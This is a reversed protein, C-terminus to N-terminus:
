AGHAAGISAHHHHQDRRRWVYQSFSNRHACSAAVARDFVTQAAGHLVGRSRGVHRDDVGAAGVIMGALKDADDLALFPVISLLGSIVTTAVMSCSSAM